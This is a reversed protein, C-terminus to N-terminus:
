IRCRGGSKLSKGHNRGGAHTWYPGILWCDRTASTKESVHNSTRLPGDHRECKLSAHTSAHNGRRGRPKQDSDWLFAQLCALRYAERHRGSNCRPPHTEGDRQEALDTTQWGERSQCVPFRDTPQVWVASAM